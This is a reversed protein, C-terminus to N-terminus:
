KKSCYCYLLHLTISLGTVCVIGDTFDGFALSKYMSTYIEEAEIICTPFELELKPHTQEVTFNGSSDTTYTRIQTTSLFDLAVDVALQYNCLLVEKPTAESVEFSLVKQNILAVILCAAVKFTDPNGIWFSKKNLINQFEDWYAKKHLNIVKFRYEQGLEVYRESHKEVIKDISYFDYYM